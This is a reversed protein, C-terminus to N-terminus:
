GQSSLGRQATGDFRRFGADDNRDEDSRRSLNGGDRALMTEIDAAELDDVHRM